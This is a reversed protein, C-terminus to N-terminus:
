VLFCVIFTQKTLVTGESLADNVFFGETKIM